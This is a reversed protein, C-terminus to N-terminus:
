LEIFLNDYAINKVVIQIVLRVWTYETQGLFGAKENTAYDRNKTWDARSKYADRVTKIAQM